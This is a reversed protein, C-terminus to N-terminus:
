STGLPTAARIAARQPMGLAFQILLPQGILKSVFCVQLQVGVTDITCAQEAIRRVQLKRTDIYKQTSCLCLSKGSM